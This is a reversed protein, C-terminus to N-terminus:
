CLTVCVSLCVCMKVGQAGTPALFQRCCCYAIQMSGEHKNHSIRNKICNTDTFTSESVECQWSQRWLHSRDLCRLMLELTVPCKGLRWLHGPINLWSTGVSVYFSKNMFFFIIVWLQLFSADFRSDTIKNKTSQVSGYNLYGILIRQAHQHHALHSRHWATWHKPSTLNDSIGIQWLNGCRSM